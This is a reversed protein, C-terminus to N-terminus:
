TRPLAKKYEEELKKLSKRALTRESASLRLIFLIGDLHDLEHQVVRAHIDEVEEEFTKGELDLARVLVRESRSVKGRVGPISLCGEEETTEGEARIIEPNVYVREREPDPEADTNVVFLRASWGVQPAALGVGREEYMITFMERARRRVEDDVKALRLARRRLIPDPYLILQM